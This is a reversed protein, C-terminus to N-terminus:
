QNLVILDARFKSAEVIQANREDSGTAWAHAAALDKGFQHHRAVLRDLRLSDDIGVFWRHDLLPSIEEWGDQDHFLYNGETIVLKVDSALLGEDAISEEIERHFIPYPIVDNNNSRIETLLNVYGEVDFTDPAGKRDRRGLEELEENSLHFGDMPVHAVLDAPLNAMLFASLQSKGAGPKGAIGLVTRSPANSLLDKARLLASAFDIEEV